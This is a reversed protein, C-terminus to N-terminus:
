NPRINRERRVSDGARLRASSPSEPAPQRPSPYERPKAAGRAPWEPPPPATPLARTRGRDAARLRNRRQSVACFCNRAHVLDDPRSIQKHGRGLFNHSEIAGDIKQRARGFSQNKTVVALRRKNCGVQNRLGLMIRVRQHQQDRLRSFQRARNRPRHSRQGASIRDGLLRQSLMSGHQQGRRAVCAISQVFRIAGSCRVVVRSFSGPM